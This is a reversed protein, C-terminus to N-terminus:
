KIRAVARTWEVMFGFGVNPVRRIARVRSWENISVLLERIEGVRRDNELRCHKGRGFITKSDSFIIEVINLRSEVPGMRRFRMIKARTHHTKQRRSEQNQM